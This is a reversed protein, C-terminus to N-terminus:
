KTSNQSYEIISIKINQNIIVSIEIRTKIVLICIVFGCTQSLKTLGSVSIKSQLVLHLPKFSFTSEPHLLDNLCTCDSSNLSTLLSVSSTPWLKSLSKLDSLNICLFTTSVDTTNGCLSPRGYLLARRLRIDSCKCFIIWSSPLLQRKSEISESLTRILRTYLYLQNIQNNCINNIKNM